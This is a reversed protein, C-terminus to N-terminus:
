SFTEGRRGLTFFFVARSNFEKLYLAKHFQKVSFFYGIDVAKLLVSYYM